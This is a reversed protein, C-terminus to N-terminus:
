GGQQVLTTVEGDLIVIIDGLLVGKVKGVLFHPYAQHLTEQGVVQLCVRHFALVRHTIHVLGKKATVHVTGETQQLSEQQSDRVRFMSIVFTMILLHQVDNETQQAVIDVHLDTGRAAPHVHHKAGGGREIHHIQLQVLVGVRRHVLYVQLMIGLTECEAAQGNHLDADIEVFLSPRQTVPLYFSLLHQIGAANTVALTSTEYVHPCLIRIM